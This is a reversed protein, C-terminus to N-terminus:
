YSLAVNKVTTGSFVIPDGSSNYVNQKASSSVVFKFVDGIPKSDVPVPHDNVNIIADQEKYDVTVKGTVNQAKLIDITMTHTATSYISITMRGSYGGSDAPLNVLLEGNTCTTTSGIQNGRQPDRTSDTNIDEYYKCNMNNDIDLIMKNNLTPVQSTGAIAVFGNQYIDIYSGAATRYTNYETLATVSAVKTTTAYNFDTNRTGTVTLETGDVNFSGTIEQTASNYSLKNGNLLTFEHTAAGFQLNDYSGIEELLKEGEESVKQKLESEKSRKTTNIVLTSIPILIIALLAVSIIVEIISFGKKTKTRKVKM